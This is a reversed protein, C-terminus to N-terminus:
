KLRFTIPLSMSVRVAEGRQRGPAFRADSVAKLAEEDCGAGIGRVVVPNQVSGREDVVFQVIVRGEVGAKRALEPYRIQSHISALGGYLEPMQEVIVFVEPEAERPPEPPPPLPAIPGGLDLGSDLRIIEDELIDEDPVVVPILPRPPPPPTEPQATQAVEEARILPQEALLDTSAGEIRIDLRFAVVLLTLSLIMGVEAFLTYLRGLDAKDTKRLAM